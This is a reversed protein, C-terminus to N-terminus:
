KKNNDVYKKIENLFEFFCIKTADTTWNDTLYKALLIHLNEIDIRENIMELLDDCEVEHDKVMVDMEKQLTNRQAVVKKTYLKQAKLENYLSQIIEDKVDIKKQLERKEKTLAVNNDIVDKFAEVLSKKEEM